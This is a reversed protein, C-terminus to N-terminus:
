AVTLYTSSPQVRMSDSSLAYGIVQVKDGSTSPATQTLGGATASLYIPAGATWAWADNRVVGDDVVSVAEGSGAHTAITLGRAPYTGSGNADAQAWTSSSTLYVADWQTLASASNRGVIVSGEYTDDTGPVANLQRVAGVLRVLAGTGTPATGGLTTLMADVSADDLVTRAAATFDAMAWTGSGTAYPLKDAASTLAAIATLDTDAAQYDTGAVATTLVGSSLKAIGTGTARKGTKGGTGSFLVVEGDVSSSTNSSFDGGGAGGVLATGDAKTYGVVIWNGSGLSVARFSDGHAVTINNGANQLIFSTANHQLVVSGGTISFRGQRVIGAVATGFGTITTAGSTNTIRVNISNVNDLETTAAATIDTEAGWQGFIDTEGFLHLITGDYRWFLMAKGSAPLTFTTINQQAAYSYSTPSAPLTILHANTDSNTLQLGFWADNTPTGSFLLTSPASITKTNLAKTVDVTLAAMANPTIAEAGSTTYEGSISPTAITPSTGFVLAGSGTEGTVAAALNASSPTALFTAVGSGLGSIGTAVPLGTCNTLTGSTPTGLVPTVLTPSTARVLGGTGTASAGGLTDVMASVSADDLVTRAASTIATEAWTDVGTTYALKDAATGLAALSALTADYAQVNTGIALGLNTRATSASAVDSLNNAALMDGGGPVAAWELTTANAKLFQGNSGRALRVATNAGSGIVLDGAADWIADTSVDGTAAANLSTGSISLGTGPALYTYAGASDDWFLIRDANPDVLDAIQQLKANQAQVVSGVAAAIRDDAATPFDSITAATQTGTHNARALLTADSSNATSGAAIGDLKTKDAGTMFGAAGAAVANAHVAGGVGEHSTALKNNNLDTFNGDLENHTLASGKTSRLTITM